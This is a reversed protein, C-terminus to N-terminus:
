VVIVSLIALLWIHVPYFVYFLYKTLTNGGGRTGNYMWVFPVVTIFLADTKFILNRLMQEVPLEASFWGRFLVAFLLFYGAIIKGKQDKFFYAVLM